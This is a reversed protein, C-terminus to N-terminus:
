EKWKNKRSKSSISEEIANWKNIVKSALVDELNNKEIYNILGRVSFEDEEWKIVTDNKIRSKGQETRLDYLFSINSQINDVGYDFIIDVFAERFPASIKAKKLRIKTTIGIARNKKIIKEVEALWICHSAYFDLAKGGNRSYKEGFMVGIKERIQSIIILLVKKGKIEASRLRFFESMFKQKSLQYSGEDFDVGKEIAKQRRDDRKREEISPLGDLTDVVYILYEDDKLKTMEQRLRVSMEEVSFSPNEDKQIISFGYMGKTDFSFGGESDDYVWKLKKGYVYTYLYALVEIALYTKGSSTDGVINIVRGWPMGGGMVLDFLTIGTSDWKQLSKNKVIKKKATAAAQEVVEEVKSSGRRRKEM